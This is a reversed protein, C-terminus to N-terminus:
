VRIGTKTPCRSWYLVHGDRKFLASMTAGTCSGPVYCWPSLPQPVGPRAARTCTAGSGHKDREGSCMCGHLAIMPSM